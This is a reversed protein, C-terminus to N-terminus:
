AREMQCCTRVTRRPGVIRVPVDPGDVAAVIDVSGLKIAAIDLQQGVSGSIVGLRGNAAVALLNDESGRAVAIQVNVGHIGVTRMDALQSVLQTVIAAREPRRIALFDDVTGLM